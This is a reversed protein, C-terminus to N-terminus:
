HEYVEDDPMVAFVVSDAYVDVRKANIIDEKTLQKDMAKRWEKGM